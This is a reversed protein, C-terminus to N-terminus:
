SGSRTIREERQSPKSVYRIKKWFLKLAQVHILVIAKLTVLPYRVFARRLAESTLPMFHGKLSTKLVDQDGDRYDIAIDCINDTLGFCFRYGGKRELFPSVHFAKEASLWDRSGIPRCDDHLCLYTHTEGFTNNVECIVAYIDGANTYCVWFSVPNFVYGLVRPMCILTVAYPHPVHHVDFVDDVWQRLSRGDRYGHDRVYFSHLAFRNLALITGISGDEIASLPLALYYLGYRFANKKPHLRCHAVQAALLSAAIM